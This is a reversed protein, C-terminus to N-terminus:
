FNKFHKNFYSKVKKNSLFGGINLENKSDEHSDILDFKRNVIHFLKVINNISELSEYTIYEHEHGIGNSFYFTSHTIYAIDNDFELIKNIYRKKSFYSYISIIFPIIFAVNAIFSIITIINNFVIINNM